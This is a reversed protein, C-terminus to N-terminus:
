ACAAGQLRNDQLQLEGLGARSLSPDLRQAVPHRTLVDGNRQFGHTGVRAVNAM